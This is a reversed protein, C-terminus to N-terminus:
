ANDLCNNDFYNISEKAVLGMQVGRLPKAFIAMRQSGFGDLVNFGDALFMAKRIVCRLDFISDFM